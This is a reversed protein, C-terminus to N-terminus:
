LESVGGYVTSAIPSVAVMGARNACLEPPCHTCYRTLLKSTRIVIVVSSEKSTGASAVM